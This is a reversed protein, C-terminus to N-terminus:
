ISDVYKIVNCVATNIAEHYLLGNLLKKIRTFKLKAAIAIFAKKKSALSNNIYAINCNHM